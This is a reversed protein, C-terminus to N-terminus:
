QTYGAHRETPPSKQSPSHSTLLGLAGRELGLGTGGEQETLLQLALTPTQFKKPDKDAGQDRM